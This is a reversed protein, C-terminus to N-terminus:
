SKKPEKEKKTLLNTILQLDEFVEGKNQKQLTVTLEFNDHNYV